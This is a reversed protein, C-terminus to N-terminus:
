FLKTPKTRALKVGRAQVSGGTKYAAGMGAIAIGGGKKKNSSSIMKGKKATQPQQAFSSYANALNSLGGTTPVPAAQMPAQQMPAAQQLSSLYGFNSDPQGGIYPQPAMGPQQARLPFGSIAGALGGLSPKNMGTDIDVGPILGKIPASPLPQVGPRPKDYILNPNVNIPKGGIGPRVMRRGANIMSGSFAKKVKLKSKGAESLAIAVAQKPNSVIKKSKGSHLKGKKFERMVKGIKKQSKTMTGKAAKVMKGSTTEKYGKKEMMTEKGEMKMSEKNEHKKSEDKAKKM